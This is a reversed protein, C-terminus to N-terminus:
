FRYKLGTRIISFELEDKAQVGGRDVPTDFELDNVLRVEALTSWRDTLQIELGGGYVFATEEDSLDDTPPAFTYAAQGDFEFQTIGILGYISLKDTVNHGFKVDLGYSQDLEIDTTKVSNFTKSNATEDAYFVEVAVFFDPTIQYQYGGALYASAGTDKDIVSISPGGAPGDNPLNTGTNRTNTQELTTANLGGHIYFGTEARAPTSVFVSAALTAILLSKRDFM